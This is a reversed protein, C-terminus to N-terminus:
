KHEEGRRKFNLKLQPSKLLLALQAIAIEGVM